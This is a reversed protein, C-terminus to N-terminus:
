SHIDDTSIKMHMKSLNQVHFNLHIPAFYSMGRWGHHLDVKNLKKLTISDHNSQNVHFIWFCKSVNYFFRIVITKLFIPCFPVKNHAPCCSFTSRRQQFISRKENVYIKLASRWIIKPWIKCQFMFILSFQPLIPWM